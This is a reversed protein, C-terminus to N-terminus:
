DGRYAKKLRGKNTYKSLFEIWTEPLLDPMEEPPEPFLGSEPNHFIPRWQTGAKEWDSVIEGPIYEKLGFGQYELEAAVDGPVPFPLSGNIFQRGFRVTNDTPGDPSWVWWYNQKNKIRM